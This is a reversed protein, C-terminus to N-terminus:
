VRGPNPFAFCLLVYGWLGRRVHITGHIAGKSSGARSLARAKCETKWSKTIIWFVWMQIKCLYLYYRYYYYNSNNNNNHSIDPFSDFWCFSTNLFCLLLPFRMRILLSPSEILMCSTNLILDLDVHINTSYILLLQHKVLDCSISWCGRKPSQEHESVISAKILLLPVEILM